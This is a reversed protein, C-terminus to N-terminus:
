ADRSAERLARDIEGAETALAPNVAAQMSRPIPGVRDAEDMAAVIDAPVPHATQTALSVIVITLSSALVGVLMPALQTSEVLQAYEWVFSVTAGAIISALAGPANAKRWWVACVYAPLFASGLVTTAFVVISFVTPPEELAVVYGVVAIATVLGRSIMVMQTESADPNVFREYLDRSAISGTQLLLSDATSMIAAMIAAMVLGTVAAPLLAGAAEFIAMEPDNLDPLLVVAFIGLMYPTPVFFLNWLTAWAGAKRATAPRSMAMHRTVVHPWGMYGVSFILLAGAVIGWDGEFGLGKGWMTLLTPDIDAVANHAGTLGGLELLVAGMIWVVGVLMIISQFFDTYAVALYGGMFTYVLIVAVAIALAVPYDLGTVLAMGKGGAIFQALVYFGLLFVTLVGSVLRIAPLPYRKELYEISTLAGFMQSLKRMRRGIVSLNLVGGGIDGVAYWLAWYGQSFGLGGAGLFMYGSMTTTQLTLATTAPGVKRGGLLYGELDKGAGRGMAWYGIGLVVVYYLVLFVVVTTNM